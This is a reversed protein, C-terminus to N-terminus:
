LRALARGLRSRYGPSVLPLWSRLLRAGHWDVRADLRRVLGELETTEKASLEPHTAIFDRALTAAVHLDHQDGLHDQLAVVPDILPAADAVLAERVFELTYRLWKGAIRLEHLTALDAGAVREDFAWVREYESWATAPMRGRVRGRRPREVSGLDGEAAGLFAEHEGVFSLFAPSSLHHVLATRRADREAVWGARLPLLGRRARAGHREASGDVIDLLVDLDRVAGLLGGVARLDARYRLTADSEFGNGFVRWAARMRRSAVRMAHLEEPDEGAMAGPVRVLMRAFHLRLVKRGAEPWPDGGDVGPSRTAALLAMARAVADVLTGGDLTADMDDPAGTTTTTKGRAGADHAGTMGSVALM